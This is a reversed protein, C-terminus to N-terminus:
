NSRKGELFERHLQEFVQKVSIIENCLYANSGCFVYGNDFKGARAEILARAICYPSENPKCPKLCHYPCNIPTRKGAKVEELFKNNIARGPMGVPSRIITIDEKKCDLYAQKFGIDADCEDTTVFRTAMQVGSAGLELFKAIDGGYYIGGAAIVPIKQTSTEYPRVSEVVEPIIRELGHEVFDSEALQEHSYGLHGGAKPGEVIIADPIRGRGVWSKCMMSALKASSVIPILKTHTNGLERAQTPLDRPVGAGSIIFDVRSELATQVLESYNSLAHMINVGLFGKGPIMKSRAVQIEDRLAQSSTSKYDGSYGKSENLGVSAIVGLGGENAVASALSAGSIGVGMGGQILKIKREGIELLPIAWNEM